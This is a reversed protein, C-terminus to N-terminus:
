TLRSVQPWICCIYEQHHTLDDGSVHLTFGNRLIFLCNKCRTPSIESSNLNGITDFVSTVRLKLRMNSVLVKEVPFRHSVSSHITDTLISEVKYGDGMPRSNDEATFIFNLSLFTCKIVTFNCHIM